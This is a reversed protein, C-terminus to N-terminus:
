IGMVTFPPLRMAGSSGYLGCDGREGVDGVVSGVLVALRTDPPLRLADDDDDVTEGRVDDVAAGRCVVDGRADAAVVVDGRVDAVAGCVVDGRM